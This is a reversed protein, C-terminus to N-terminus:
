QKQSGNRSGDISWEAYVAKRPSAVKITNDGNNLAGNNDNNKSSGGDCAASEQIIIHNLMEQNASPPQCYFQENNSNSNNVQHHVIRSVVPPRHPYLRPIQLWVMSDVATGTSTRSPVRLVLQLPAKRVLTLGKAPFTWQCDDNDVCQWGATAALDCLDRQLCLEGASSSLRVRKLCRQLSACSDMEAVDNKSNNSSYSRSHPIRRKNDPCGNFKSSRM